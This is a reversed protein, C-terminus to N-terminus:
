PGLSMRDLCFRVIPIHATFETEHVRPSIATPDYDSHLLLKAESRTAFALRRTIVGIIQSYQGSPRVGGSKRARCWPRNSTELRVTYGAARRAECLARFAMSWAGLPPAKPWRLITALCPTNRAVHDTMRVLTLEVQLPTAGLLRALQTETRIKNPMLNLLGIRMPRIDQRVADTERMVMVGEAELTCRAPLDDPIKIPM